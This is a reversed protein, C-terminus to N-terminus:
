ILAPLFKIIEIKSGLFKINKYFIFGLKRVTSHSQGPLFVSKVLTESTFFSQFFAYIFM